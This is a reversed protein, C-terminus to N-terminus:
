SCSTREDRTNVVINDPKKSFTVTIGPSTFAQTTACNYGPSHYVADITATGNSYSVNEIEIYYGGTNKRGMCLTYVYQNGQYTGSNTGSNSYVFGGENGNSVGHTGLDNSSCLNPNSSGIKYTIPERMVKYSLNETGMRFSYDKGNSIVNNGNMWIIDDSSTNFNITMEEDYYLTTDILNYPYSKDDGFTTNIRATTGVSKGDNPYSRHYTVGTYGTETYFSFKYQNRTYYYNVVTNGNSLVTTRQRNPSTFGTYHRVDPIVTSLPSGTLNETEVLEYHSEDKVDDCIKQKYHKVVYRVEPTSSVNRIEEADNKDVKGDNNVDAVVKDSEKLESKKEIYSEVIKNDNDDVKGDNNVDGIIRDKSIIFQIEDADNKDVKGDNNIDATDKDVSEPNELIRNIDNMDLAGNGNVDGIIINKSGKYRVPNYKDDIEDLRIPINSVSSGIILKYNDDNVILQVINGDADIRVYYSIDPINLDNNTSDYYREVRENWVRESYFKSQAAHYVKNVGNIFAKKEQRNKEIMEIASPEKTNNKPDNAKQIVSIIIIALLGIGVGILIDKLNLKNNRGM